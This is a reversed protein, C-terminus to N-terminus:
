CTGRCIAHEFECDKVPVCTLADYGSVGYGCICKSANAKTSKTSKSVHRPQQGSPDAWAEHLTISAAMACAVIMLGALVPKKRGVM